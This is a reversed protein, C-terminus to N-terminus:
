ALNILQRESIVAKMKNILEEKSHLGGGATYFTRLRSEPLKHLFMELEKFVAAKTDSDEIEAFCETYHAIYEQHLESLKSKRDFPRDKKSM